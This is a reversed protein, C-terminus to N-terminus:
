RSLMKALDNIENTSRCILPHRLHRHSRPRFTGGHASVSKKPRTDSEAIGTLPQDEARADRFSGAIM